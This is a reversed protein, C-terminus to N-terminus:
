SLVGVLEYVDSAPEPEVEENVLSKENVVSAAGADNVDNSIEGDIDDCWMYSSEDIEGVGIPTPGSHVHHSFLLVITILLFLPFIQFCKM